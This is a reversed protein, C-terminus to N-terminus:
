QDLVPVLYDCSLQTVAENFDGQEVRFREIDHGDRRLLKLNPLVYMYIKLAFDRYEEVSGDFHFCAYRGPPIEIHTLHDAAPSETTITYSIDVPEHERDGAEYHTLAYCLSPTPTLKKLFDIWFRKRIQAHVSSVHELPCAYHYTNGYLSFAPLDMMHPVPLSTMHLDLPPQLASADWYPSRRYAAPTINFHAKFRRTFTQQSDFQYQIAINLIPQRTLRLAIAARCLRRSRIYGGLALGTINKFTRQLHWKSYGAKRAVDDLLLPQELNDEIWSLLETIVNTNFEPPNM